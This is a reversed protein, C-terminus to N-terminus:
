KGAKAFKELTEHRVLDLVEPVQGGLARVIARLSHDIRLLYLGPDTGLKRVLSASWDPRPIGELAPLQVLVKTQDAPSLENLAASARRHFQFQGAEM